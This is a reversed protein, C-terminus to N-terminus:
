ANRAGSSDPTGVSPSEDAASNMRHSVPIYAQRHRAADEEKRWMLQLERLEGARNLPVEEEKPLPLPVKARAKEARIRTRITKQSRNKQEKRKEKKSQPWADAGAVDHGDDSMYTPQLSSNYVFCCLV